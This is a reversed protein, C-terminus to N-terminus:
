GCPWARPLEDRALVLRRVVSARVLARSPGFSEGLETLPEGCDRVSVASVEPDSLLVPTEPSAARWQAGGWSAPGRALRLSDAEGSGGPGALGRASRANADCM